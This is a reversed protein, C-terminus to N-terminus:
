ILKYNGVKINNNIAFEMIEIKKKKGVTSAIIAIEESSNIKQIDELNNVIVERLGQKNLGRVEAPSGYGPSPLAGRTKKHRRLKSHLGRPKRWKKGLGKKRFWEQRRFKPKKKKIKDRIKLLVEKDVM